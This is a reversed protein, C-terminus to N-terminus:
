IAKLLSQFIFKSMDGTLCPLPLVYQTVDLINYNCQFVELSSIFCAAIVFCSGSWLFLHWLVHSSLKGARIRQTLVCLCCEADFKFRVISRMVYIMFHAHCLGSQGAFWSSHFNWSTICHQIVSKPMRHSIRLM